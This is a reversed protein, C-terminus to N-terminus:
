TGRSGEINIEVNFGGRQRTQYLGLTESYVRRTRVTTSLGVEGEETKSLSGSASSLPVPHPDPGRPSLSSHSPVSPLVSVHTPTRTKSVLLLVPVVRFSLPVSVSTGLFLFRGSLLLVSPGTSPCDDTPLYLHRRRYVFVDLCSWRVPSM